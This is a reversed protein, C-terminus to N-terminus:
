CTYVGANLELLCHNGVIWWIKWKPPSLLFNKSKVRRGRAALDQVLDGGIVSASVSGNDVNLLFYSVSKWTRVRLRNWFPSLVPVGIERRFMMWGTHRDWRQRTSIHSLRTRNKDQNVDICNVVYVILYCFCCSTICVLKGCLEEHKRLGFFTVYNFPDSVVCFILFFSDTV